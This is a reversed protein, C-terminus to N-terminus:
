RRRLLWATGALPLVGAAIMLYLYTPLRLAQGHAAAGAAAGAVADAAGAVADPLAMPAYPALWLSLGAALMVGIVTLGLKRQRRRARQVAVETAVSVVFSEDAAVEEGQAFLRRLSEDPNINM